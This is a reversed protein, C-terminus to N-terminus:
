TSVLTRICKALAPLSLKLFILLNWIQIQQYNKVHVAKKMDKVSGTPKFQFVPTDFM